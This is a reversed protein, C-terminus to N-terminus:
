RLYAQPTMNWGKEIRYFKWEYEDNSPAETNQSQCAISYSNGVYHFPLNEHVLVVKLEMNADKYFSLEGLKDYHVTFTRYGYYGIVIAIIALIPNIAKQTQPQIEQEM